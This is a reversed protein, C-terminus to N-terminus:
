LCLLLSLLPLLGLLGLLRLLLLQLQGMIWLLLVLLVVVLVLVLLRLVLLLLLLLLSLRLVLLLWLLRYKNSPTSLTLWSPRRSVSMNVIGIADRARTSVAFCHDHTRLAYGHALWESRQGRLRLDHGGVRCGKASTLLLWHRLLWLHDVMEGLLCTMMLCSVVLRQSLAKGICLMSLHHLQLM